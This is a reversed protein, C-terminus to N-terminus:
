KGGGKRGTMAQSILKRALAAMSMNENAAAKRLAHHVAPDLDVRVPKTKPEETAPM